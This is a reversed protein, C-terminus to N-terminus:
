IVAPLQHVQTNLRQQVVYTPNLVVMLVIYLLHAVSQLETFSVALFQLNQEYLLTGKAIHSTIV